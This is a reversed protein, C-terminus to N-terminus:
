IFSVSPNVLDPNRVINSGKDQVLTLILSMAEERGLAKMYAVQIQEFKIYEAIDMEEQPHAEMWERIENLQKRNEELEHFICVNINEM